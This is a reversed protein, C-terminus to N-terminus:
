PIVGLKAKIAALDALIHDDREKQIAVDMDRLGEQKAVRDRVDVAAGLSAAAATIALGAIIARADLWDPRSM